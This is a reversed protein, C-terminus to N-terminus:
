SSKSKLTWRARMYADQRVKSGKRSTNGEIRREFCTEAVSFGM